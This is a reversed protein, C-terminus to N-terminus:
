AKMPESLLEFRDDALRMQYVAINKQECVALLEQSTEHVMKSGLFIRSPTPAPQNHDDTPVGYEFIMRWEEEYRWGEFKHIMSLLPLM